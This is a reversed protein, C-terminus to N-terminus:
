RQTTDIVVGGIKSAMFNYVLAGLAGFIFGLIAYAIPSAILAIIGFLVGSRPGPGSGFEGSTSVGVLIGLALFVGPILGIVAYVVAAIKAVSMVGVRAIELRNQM